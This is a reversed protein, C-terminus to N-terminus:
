QASGRNAEGFHTALTNIPKWNHKAQPPSHLKSKSRAGKGLVRVRVKKDQAIGSATHINDNFNDM